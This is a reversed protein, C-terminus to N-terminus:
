IQTFFSEVSSTEKLIKAKLSENENVLDISSKGTKDKDNPKAGAKLIMKLAECTMEPNSCALHLPTKMTDTTKQNISHSSYGLVVKLTALNVTTNQCEYHLVSNQNKDSASKIAFIGFLFKLLEPERDPRSCAFMLPTKNNSSFVYHFKSESALIKAAEVNLIPQEFLIIIPHPQIMTIYVDSKLNDVLTQIIEPHAGEVGCAHHLLTKSMPNLDDKEFLDAGQQVLTRFENLDNRLIAGKLGTATIEKKPRPLSAKEQLLKKVKEDKAFDLATKGNSDRLYVDAGKELLLKILELSASENEVALHLATKEDKNKVNIDLKNFNLVVNVIDMNVPKRSVAIQLPTKGGLSADQYDGVNISYEYFAPYKIMIRLKAIDNRKILGWVGGEMLAIRSIEAEEM